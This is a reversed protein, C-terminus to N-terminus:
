VVSKRDAAGSAEGAEATFTEIHGLGANDTILTGLNAQGSMTSALFNGTYLSRPRIDGSDKIASLIARASLNALSLEWHEGVPTMGIGAIFVESM